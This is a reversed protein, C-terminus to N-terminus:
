KVAAVVAVVVLIAALAATMIRNRTKPDVCRAYGSPTRRGARPGTGPPQGGVRGAGM